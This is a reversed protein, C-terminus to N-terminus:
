WENVIVDNQNTRIPTFNRGYDHTVVWIFVPKSKYIEIIADQYHALNTNTYFHFTDSNYRSNPTLSYIWVITYNKIKGRMQRDVSFDLDVVSTGSQSRVQKWSFVCPTNKGNCPNVVMTTGNPKTIFPLQAQASKCMVIIIMVFLYTIIRM